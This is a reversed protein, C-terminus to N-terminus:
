GNSLGGRNILAELFMEKRKQYNNKLHEPLSIEMDDINANPKFTGPFSSNGSRLDILKQYDSRNYLNNIDKRKMLVEQKISDSILEGSIELFEALDMNPNLREQHKEQVRGMAYYLPNQYTIGMSMNYQDINMLRYTNQIELDEKSTKFEVPDYIENLFKETVENGLAKNVKRSIVKMSDSRQRLMEKRQAEERKRQEEILYPNFLTYSNNYYGGNYGYQQQNYGNSGIGLINGGYPYYNSPPSQVGGGYYNMNIQPNPGNINYM